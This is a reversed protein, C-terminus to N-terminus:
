VETEPLRDERKLQRAIRYWMREDVNGEYEREIMVAIHDKTERNYIQEMERIFDIQEEVTELIKLPNNKSAEQMKIYNEMLEKPLEKPKNREM